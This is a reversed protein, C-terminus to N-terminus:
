AALQFQLLTMVPYPTKQLEIGVKGPMMVTGYDMVSPAAICVIQYFLLRVKIYHRKIRDILDIKGSKDFIEKIIQQPTSTSDSRLKIDFYDIVEQAIDSEM